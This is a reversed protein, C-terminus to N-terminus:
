PLPVEGRSPRLLPLAALLLAGSVLLWQGFQTRLGVVPLAPLTMAVSDAGAIVASEVSDMCHGRDTRVGCQNACCAAVAGYTAAETMAAPAVLTLFVLTGFLSVLAAMHAGRLVAVLIELTSM